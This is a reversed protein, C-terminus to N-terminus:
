SGVEYFARQTERRFGSNVTVMRACRRVFTRQLGSVVIRNRLSKHRDTGHDTYVVGKGSSLVAAAVVPNFTHMHVVDAWDVAERVRRLRTFDFGHRFDLSEPGPGDDAPTGAARRGVVRRVDLGPDRGQATSLGSAIRHIGGFGAQWYWHLIRLARDPTPM